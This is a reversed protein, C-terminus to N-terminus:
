YGHRTDKELDDEVRNAIEQLEEKTHIWQEVSEELSERFFIIGELQGRETAQRILERCRLQALRVVIGAALLCIIAILINNFM